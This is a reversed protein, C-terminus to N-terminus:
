LRKFWFHLSKATEEAQDLDKWSIQCTLDNTPIFGRKKWFDDLPRYNAPRLPHHASRVVGCFTLLDFRELQRAWKEREEFFRVGIGKGRYGKQLVSEGFYFIRGPNYGNRIWPDKINATENEMPMATSAGIVQNGDFAIVIISEPADLLTQLYEEEYTMDGDYLYPFDRFITIRLRALETIYQHADPGTFSAISIAM